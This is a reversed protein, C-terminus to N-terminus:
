FAAKHWPCTVVGDHLVGEHLPAGAHPCTSGVAHCRGGSKALLLKHGDAEVVRMANEGLDAEFGVVHDVM